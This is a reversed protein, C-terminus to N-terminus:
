LGEPKFPPPKEWSRKTMGTKIKYWQMCVNLKRSERRYHAGPFFPPQSSRVPNIVGHHFLRTDLLTTPRLVGGDCSWM